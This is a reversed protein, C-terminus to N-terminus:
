SRSHTGGLRRYVPYQIVGAPLAARAHRKGGMGGAASTIGINGKQAKTAQELFLRVEPQVGTVTFSERRVDYACLLV